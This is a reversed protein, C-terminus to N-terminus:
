NTKHHMSGSEVINRGGDIDEGPTCTANTSLIRTKTM